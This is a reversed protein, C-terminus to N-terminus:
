LLYSEAIYWIDLRYRTGIRNILYIDQVRGIDMVHVETAVHYHTYLVIVKHLQNSKLVM